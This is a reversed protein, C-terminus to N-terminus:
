IGIATWNITQIKNNKNYYVIYACSLPNSFGDSLPISSLLATDTNNRTGGGTLYRYCLYQNDFASSATTCFLSFNLLMTSFKNNGYDIKTVYPTSLGGSATIQGHIMKISDTINISSLSTYSGTQNIGSLVTNFASTTVAKNDLLGALIEASTALIATGTTTTSASYLSIRNNIYQANNYLKELHINFTVSNLIEGNNFKVDNINNWPYTLSM